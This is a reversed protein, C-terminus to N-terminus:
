IKTRSNQPKRGSSKYFLDNSRIVRYKIKCIVSSWSVHHCRYILLFLNTFSFLAIFPVNVSNNAVPYRVHQIAFHVIICFCSCRHCRNGSYAWWLWQADVSVQRVVPPAEFLFPFVIRDNCVQLFLELIDLQAEIAYVPLGRTTFRCHNGSRCM